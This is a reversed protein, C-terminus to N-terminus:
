SILQKVTEKIYDKRSSLDHGPYTEFVQKCIQKMTVEELNAGKLLGKVTEKLQEDTLPKRVMKALPEDDSSDDLDSGGSTTNAKKRRGSSSDAKKSKAASKVPTPKARAPKKKPAPKKVVKPKKVEEDTDKDVASDSSSDDSIIERSKPAPASKEASDEDAQGDQEKDEDEDDTSSDTLIARSKSDEQVSKRNSRQAKRKSDKTKRKKKPLARGSMKPDLLFSLIRDIKADHTGSRELDLVYCMNKLLANTFKKIREKKKTYAQSNAEFPFGSFQRINKKVSSAAGPRDFMVKHLPKLDEVKMKGIFYAVRMIDGLKDGRGQEIKVREKPKAVSFDLRQVTKKQRKGEIVEGTSIRKGYVTSSEEKKDVREAEDDDGMEEPLARKETKKTPKPDGVEEM